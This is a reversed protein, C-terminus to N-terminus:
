RIIVNDILRVKGVKIAILAVIHEADNQDTVASLNGANAIELYDLQSDPIRILMKKAESKIESISLTNFNNQIFFLTQSIDSANKRESESLRVNRSSMALGDPERVIECPILQCHINELDMMKRVVMVQQFDKQGMYLRDPQVTDLLLKMVNAVGQFHNPRFKGELIKEIGGLNFHILEQTGNPYIEEVSPYFLVNCGASLLLEIDKEVPRPYKKLDEPDNFQVPNVFISCVTIDNETKSKNILSVHGAHLAGMTPVFGVTKGSQKNKKLFACLADSKKLLLM